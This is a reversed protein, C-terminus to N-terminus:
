LCFGNKKKILNDAISVFNKNMANGIEKPENVLNGNVDLVANKFQSTPRTAAINNIIKWLKKSNSKNRKVVHNFYLRKFCEIVRNLQNRYKKFTTSFKKTKDKIASMKLLM